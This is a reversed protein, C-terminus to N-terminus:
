KPEFAGLGFDGSLIDNGSSEFKKPPTKSNRQEILESQQSAQIKTRDDKRDEKANMEADKAQTQLQQIQMNMQFELQMLQKKMEVEGQMRQMEFQSKAQALQIQSQTLAQQKQVEAQAAVQQAQANAQSQAQINQQQVKQDRELKKKRRLKLVQNALKTNKIERIDIADELEINNQAIAVQINNELLQKEEEDPALELYIGFDYLHLESMEELTAVNHAGISQIFADRTPSYEIVDSIRLSIKEALEATLFLGSQL